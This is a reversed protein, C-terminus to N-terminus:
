YFSNNQLFRRLRVRIKVIIVYYTDKRSSKQLIHMQIIVSTKDHIVITVDNTTWIKIELSICNLSKSTQEGYCFILMLM